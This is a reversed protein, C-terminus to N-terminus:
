RPRARALEAGYETVFDPSGFREVYDADIWAAFSTIHRIGRSGYEDLDSRLIERNWPVRQAPRKWQSHLSSDLWYELVQATERPFVELNADLIDLTQGHSPKPRGRGSRGTADREALPHTWSREIPAFELFLGRDPTVQKPPPLTGVYALHSLSAEPDVTRLGELIANEVLVAQECDSLPNCRPCRCTPAVDDLWYFYRHTTPRLLHAYKLANECIVELGERSHACCNADPIRVGDDNMRFMDPHKAFLDRPLLDSIAHLEHEVHLGFEHSRDLFTRGADSGIFEAVSRPSGHKAITSLGASRAIEPWDVEELDSPLLVVGRTLFSSSPEAPAGGDGARTLPRLASAAAVIAARGSQQLWERRHM